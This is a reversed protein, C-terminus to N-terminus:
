NDEVESLKMAVQAKSPRKSLDLSSVFLKEISSMLSYFDANAVPRALGAARSEATAAEERGSRVNAVDFAAVVKGSSVRNALSDMPVGFDAALFKRLDAADVALHRFSTMNACSNTVLKHEVEVPVGAVQWFCILRPEAKELTIRLIAPETAM